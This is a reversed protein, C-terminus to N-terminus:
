YAESEEEEDESPKIEGDINDWEEQTLGGRAAQDANNWDDIGPWRGDDDRSVDLGIRGYELERERNELTLYSEAIEKLNYHQIAPSTYIGKALHESFYALALRVYPGAMEENISKLHEISNM